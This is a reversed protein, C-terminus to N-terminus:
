QQPPAAGAGAQPGAPHGHIAQNLGFVSTKADTALGVMAETISKGFAGAVEVALSNVLLREYGPPLVDTTALTALTTLEKYSDLQMAGAVAPIPWVWCAGYPYGGDWFLRKVWNGALSKDDIRAWDEATVIEVPESRGGYVSAAAKIKVPRATNWTMGAGITYVSVTPTLTLLDRTIYYIPLAQASLGAILLNLKALCFAYDDASVAEGPALVNIDGLTLDILGQATV